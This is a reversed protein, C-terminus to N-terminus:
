NYKASFIKYEESERVTQINDWIKQALQPYKGVFAYSPMLYYPQEEVLARPYRVIKSFRKEKQSSLIYDTRKIQGAFADIFGSALQLLNQVPDKGGENIYKEADQKNSFLKVIKDKASFGRQIGIGKNLNKIEKGTWEFTSGELIYFAYGESHLRKDPDHTIGRKEPYTGFEQRDAKYSAMFAGDVKNNKLSELCRSWPLQVFLVKIKLNSCAKKILDVDIGTPEATANQQEHPIMWPFATGDEHCISIQSIQQQDHKDDGSFTSESITLALTALAISLSFCITTNITFKKLM